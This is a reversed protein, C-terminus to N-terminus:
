WGAVLFLHDGYCRLQHSRVPNKAGHSRLNWPIRLQKKQAEFFHKLELGANSVHVFKKKFWFNRSVDSSLSPLPCM